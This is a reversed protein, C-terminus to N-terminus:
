FETFGFRAHTQELAAWSEACVYSLVLFPASLFNSKNTLTSIDFFGSKEGKKEIRTQQKVTTHNEDHKQQTKWMKSEMIFIGTDNGRKPQRCLDVAPKTVVEQCVQQAGSWWNNPLVLEKQPDQQKSFFCLQFVLSTKKLCKESGKAM